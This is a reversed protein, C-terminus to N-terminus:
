RARRRVREVILDIMDQRKVDYYRKSALLICFDAIIVLFASFWLGPIHITLFALLVVLLSGFEMISVGPGMTSTMLAVLSIGVIIAPPVPPIRRRTLLFVVDGPVTRVVDGVREFAILLLFSFFGAWTLAGYVIVLVPNTVLTINSIVTM